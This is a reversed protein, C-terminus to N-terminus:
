SYIHVKLMQISQANFNPGQVFLHSVQGQNFKVDNIWYLNGVQDQHWNIVLVQRKWYCHTVIKILQGHLIIVFHIIHLWFPTNLSFISLQLLHNTKTLLYGWLYDSIAMWSPGLSLYRYIEFNFYKKIASWGTLSMDYQKCAM